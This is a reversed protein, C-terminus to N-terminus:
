IEVFALRTKTSINIKLLNIAHRAANKLGVDSRFHLATLNDGVSRGALSVRLHLVFKWAILSM